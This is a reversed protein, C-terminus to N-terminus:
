RLGVSEKLLHVLIGVDDGYHHGELSSMRTRDLHVLDMIVDRARPDEAKTQEARWQNLEKM